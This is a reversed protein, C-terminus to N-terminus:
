FHRLSDVLLQLVVPRSGEVGSEWVGVLGAVTELIVQVVVPAVLGQFGFALIHSGTLPVHPNVLAETGHAPNSFPVLLYFTSRERPPDSGEM